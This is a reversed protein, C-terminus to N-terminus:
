VLMQGVIHRPESRFHKTGVISRIGHRVQELVQVGLFVLIGCDVLLDLKIIVAIALYGNKAVVFTSNSGVM